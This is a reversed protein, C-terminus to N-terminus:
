RPRVTSRTFRDFALARALRADREMMDNGVDSEVPDEEMGSQGDSSGQASEEDGTDEHIAFDNELSPGPEEAEEKDEEEDVVDEKNM